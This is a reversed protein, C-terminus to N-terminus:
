RAALVCCGRGDKNGSSIFFPHENDSKQKSYCLSPSQKYQDKQTVSAVALLKECKSKQQVNSVSSAPLKNNDSPKDSSNSALQEHQQVDLLSQQENHSSNKVRGTGIRKTGM